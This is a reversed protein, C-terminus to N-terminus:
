QGFTLDNYFQIWTWCIAKPPLYSLRGKKLAKRTIENCYKLALIWISLRLLLKLQLWSLIRQIGLSTLDDRVLSLKWQLFGLNFLIRYGKRGNGRFYRSNGPTHFFSILNSKFSIWWPGEMKISRQRVKELLHVELFNSNKNHSHTHTHTHTYLFLLNM